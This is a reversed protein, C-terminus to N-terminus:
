SDKMVYGMGIITHILKTDFNKDIKNRLYNIYVDVTNTGMDFEVDWVKELIQERSLVRKQNTIFYRLLRYEKSTLQINQGARVVTKSDDNIELDAIRYIKPHSEDPQNRRLLAGVRAVLERLHYPKTMYDDAGADLGAIIDETSGLATLMVVPVEFGYKERVRRCIEFGDIDPLMRDILLLDYRQMKATNWGTLGTSCVTVIYGNEELGKKICSSVSREDEIVLIKNNM